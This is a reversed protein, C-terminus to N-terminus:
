SRAKPAVVVCTGALKDHLAQRRPDWLPWLGDLTTYVGGLLQGLGQYGVWRRAIVSADLREGPAWRRVRLGLVLKGVTAAKWLLLGMEYALSVVLSVLSIVGLDRLTRVDYVAFPNISSASEQQSMVDGLHAVLDTVVPLCLVLSVPVTIATDIVRAGARRGWSALPVGDDTTTSQGPRVQQQQQAVRPSETLYGGLPEVREYVDSTWGSGDWWRMQSPVQPDTYWGPPPSTM